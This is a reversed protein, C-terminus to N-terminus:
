NIISTPSKFGMRKGTVPHTFELYAAHLYLRDAKQGYLRDGKIPNALGEKHACHVRLQHTRGTQPFLRVTRPEDTALYETVAEKGNEHDVVQRPRDDFDPRLPLSIVGGKNKLPESLVAQYEKKITHESFQRQLNKHVERTKAVVILGSTDMDLRHVMQLEECDPYRAKLISFVSPKESRGPVSLMGAPKDVVIVYDDSFIEKLADAKAIAEQRTDMLLLSELIPRCKGNCAPYFQLHHRIEQKPSEGWWFMGMELPELDHEMAYHLLKPECCEGAGSPPIMNGQVRGGMLNYRRYYTEFIEILNHKETKDNPNSFVFQEFLWRQLADSKQQRQLKLLRIEGILGNIKADSLEKKEKWHLKKRHFEAKMYQSERILQADDSLGKGRILDREFKAAKMLQRYHEIDAEGEAELRSYEEQLKRLEDSTELESIKHNIASIEREHTKFYGDEDLYDFVAPVFDPWLFRGGIQGSFAWLWGGHNCADQLEGKKNCCDNTKEKYLLIGFMKGKAIEEAFAPNDNCLSKIHAILREQAKLMEASPEYDFPNNM